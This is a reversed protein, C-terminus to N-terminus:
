KLRRRPLLNRTCGFRKGVIFGQEKIEWDVSEKHEPRVGKCMYNLLNEMNTEWSKDAHFARVSITNTPLATAKLAERLIRRYDKSSMGGLCILCHVHAGLERNEFIWAVVFPLDNRRHLRKMARRMKQWGKLCDRRSYGFAWLNITLFHTFPYGINKSNFAARRLNEAEHLELYLKAIPM